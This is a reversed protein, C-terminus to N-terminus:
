SRVYFGDTLQQVFAEYIEASMWGLQKVPTGNLVKHFGPQGKIVSLNRASMVIRGFMANFAEATMVPTPKRIVAYADIGLDNMSVSSPDGIVNNAIPTKPIMNFSGVAAGLIGRGAIKASGRALERDFVQPDTVPTYSDTSNDLPTLQVSDPSSTSAISKATAAVGAPITVGGTIIGSGITAIGSAITQVIQRQIQSVNNSTLPLSGGLTTTVTMGGVSDAGDSLRITTFGTIPDVYYKIYIQGSTAFQEYPVNLFGCGPLFVQISSYPSYSLFDTPDLPPAINIHGFDLVMANILKPATLPGADDSITQGFISVNDSVTTAFSDLSFPFVRCALIGPAPEGNFWKAINDSISTSTLYDRVIALKKPTLMYCTASSASLSSPFTTGDSVNKTATNSIITLSVVPTLSLEFLNLGNGIFPSTGGMTPVAGTAQATIKTVTPSYKFLTDDIPLITGSGSRELFLSQDSTDDWVTALVDMTLYLRLIAKSVIKQSITYCIYPLDDFGTELWCHSASQVSSNVETEVIATMGLTDTILNCDVYETGRPKPFANPLDTWQMPYLKNSM